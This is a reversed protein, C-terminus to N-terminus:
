FTVVDIHKGILLGSAGFSIKKDSLQVNKICSPLVLIKSKSLFLIKENLTVPLTHYEKPFNLKKFLTDFPVLAKQDRLNLCMMLCKFGAKVIVKYNSSIDDYDKIISIGAVDEPVIETLNIIANFGNVDYLLVFNSDVKRYCLTPHGSRIGVNDSEPLINLKKPTNTGNKVDGKIQSNACLSIISLLVIFAIKM